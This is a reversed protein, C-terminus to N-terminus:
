SDFVRKRLAEMREPEQDKTYTNSPREGLGEWTIAPPWLINKAHLLLPGVHEACSTLSGDAVREIVFPGENPCFTSGEPGEVYASCPPIQSTSHM